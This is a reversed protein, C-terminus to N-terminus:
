DGIAGGTGRGVAGVINGQEQVPGRPRKLDEEIAALIADLVERTGAAGIADARRVMAQPSIRGEFMCRMNRAYAQMRVQDGESPEPAELLRLTQRTAEAARRDERVAACEERIEALSPFRASSDVLRNVAQACDAHPLPQLKVSYLARSAESVRVWPYAAALTDVIGQAERVTM